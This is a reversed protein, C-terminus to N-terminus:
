HFIEDADKPSCNECEAHNNKVVQPLIMTNDAGPITAILDEDVSHVSVYKQTYNIEERLRTLEKFNKQHHSEFYFWLENITNEVFDRYDKELRSKKNEVLVGACVGCVFSALSLTIVMMTTYVDV